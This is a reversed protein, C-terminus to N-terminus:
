FPSFLFSIQWVSQAVYVVHLTMMHRVTRGYHQCDEVWVYLVGATLMPTM